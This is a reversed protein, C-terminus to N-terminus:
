SSKPAPFLPMILKKMWLYFIVVPACCFLILGLIASFFTGLVSLARGTGGSIGATLNTGLSSLSDTISSKSAREALKAKRRERIESVKSKKESSNASPTTTNVETTITIEQKSAQNKSPPKSQQTTKNTNSNAGPEQKDAVPKTGELGSSAGNKTSTSNTTSEETTPAATIGPTSEINDSSINLTKPKTDDGGLQSKISKTSYTVTTTEIYVNIFAVVTAFIFLWIYLRGYKRWFESARKKKESWPLLIFERMERARQGILEILGILVM